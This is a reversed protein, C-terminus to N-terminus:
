GEGRARIAASWKLLEEAADCIPCNTPRQSEEECHKFPSDFNEQILADVLSCGKELNAREEERVRAILAVLSEVDDGDHDFRGTLWNVAQYTDKDSALKADDM